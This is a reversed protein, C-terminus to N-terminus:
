DMCNIGVVLIYKVKRCTEPHGTAKNSRYTLRMVHTNSTVSFVKNELADDMTYDDSTEEVFSNHFYDSVVRMYGM